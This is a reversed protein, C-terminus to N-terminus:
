ATFSSSTISTALVGQLVVTNLTGNITGAADATAILTDFGGAAITGITFTKATTNYTGSIAYTSGIAFTGVADKAGGFTPLAAYKLKDEGITFDTIVDTSIAAALNNTAGVVTNGVFAFTDQGAGGTLSDSSNDIAASANITDNGDGGFLTDGATNGTITDSGADGSFVVAFATTAAMTDNGEGGFITSASVAATASYTITDAGKNGNVVGAETVAGSITITDNDAGGLVRAGKAVAATTITDAGQNGNVLASSGTITGGINIIDNGFNGSVTSSSLTSGAVTSFSDAGKGLEARVSTYTAAGSFTILDNAAQAGIYLPFTNGSLNATDVGSTGILSTGGAGTTTTFAL